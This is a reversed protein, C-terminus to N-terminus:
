PTIEELITFRLTFDRTAIMEKEEEGGPWHLQALAYIWYKEGTVTENTPTCIYVKASIAPSACYARLAERQSNRLGNWHWEVVPFGRGFSALSGLQVVESYPSYSWDPDAVIDAYGIVDQLLSWNSPLPGTAFTAIQFDGVAYM